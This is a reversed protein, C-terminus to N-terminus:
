NTCDQRREATPPCIGDDNVTVNGTNRDYICFTQSEGETGATYYCDLTLLDVQDALYYAEQKTDTFNGNCQFCSKLEDSAQRRNTHAASAATSYLLYAGLLAICANVKFSFM